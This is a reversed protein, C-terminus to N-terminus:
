RKLLEEQYARSLALIREYLERVYPAMDDGASASLRELLAKERAEDRVPLGKARKYEAVEASVKMRALFLPVLADDIGNIRTRLDNLDHEM